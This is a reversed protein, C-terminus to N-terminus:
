RARHSQPRLRGWGTWPAMGHVDEPDGPERAHLKWVHWPEEVGGRRYAARSKQADNRTAKGRLGSPRRTSSTIESSLLGGTHAGTLAEAPINGDGGCSEPDSHNAVGERYSEKM